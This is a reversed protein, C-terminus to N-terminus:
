LETLLGSKRPDYLTVRIDNVNTFTPKVKFLSNLENFFLHSDNNKIYFSYRGKHHAKAHSEPNFFAGAADGTGDLGDSDAAFGSFPGPDLAEMLALLYEQNPGGKGKGRVTVTLEGGSIFALRENPMKAVMSTILVSHMRAVDVAEGQVEFGIDLVRYGQAELFLAVQELAIPGSAIIKHHVACQNPKRDIPPPAGVDIGYRKLIEGLRGENYQSVYSPGSAIAALDDGVVDSIVLTLIEVGKTVGTVLGGGKTRSYASRVINMERISAGSLLLRQSLAQKQALSMGEIPACLLSSGGGSLLILLLDGAMASNATALARKGAEISNEDPVPHAATMVSIKQCDCEYGPPCVAFGSITIDPWSKELALSMAAAAKGAAIVKINKYKLPNPLHKPLCVDAQVAAIANNFLACWFAPDAM